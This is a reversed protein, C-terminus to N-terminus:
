VYYILRFAKTKVGHIQQTLASLSLFILKQNGNKIDPIDAKKISVTGISKGCPVIVFVHLSCNWM